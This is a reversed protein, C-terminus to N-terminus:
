NVYVGDTKIWELYEGDFSVYRIFGYYIEGPILGGLDLVVRNKRGNIKEIGHMLVGKSNRVLLEYMKVNKQKKWSYIRM